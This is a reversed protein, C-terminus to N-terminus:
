RGGAIRSIVSDLAKDGFSHRPQVRVPQIEDEEPRVLKADHIADADAFKSSGAPIVRGDLVLDGMGISDLAAGGREAIAAKRLSEMQSHLKAIEANAADLAEGRRVAEAQLEVGEEQLAILVDAQQEYEAQVRDLLAETSAMLANYQEAADLVVADEESLDDLCFVGVSDLAYGRNTAYNPEHVFDFGHFEVPVQVSGRSPARIVSSFGGAKTRYVREALRGPATDLFEIQHEITGDEFAKAKLVRVAPEIHVAKGGVIAGEPVNLGFKVRPWHGYYGLMDGSAIREQVEGGNVLRALAATDFNRDQGRHKRGRDRVNYRILDTKMGM